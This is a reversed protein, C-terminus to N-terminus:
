TRAHARTHTQTQAEAHADTHAHMTRAHQTLARTPMWARTRARAMVQEDEANVLAALMKDAGLDRLFKCGDTPDLATVNQLAAASFLNIPYESSLKALLKELGGAARFLALSKRAEADFVDTLLNGILSMACQQVDANSSDMFEVLLELVGGARLNAALNAADDGFCDAALDSLDALAAGQTDESSAPDTLEAILPTSM